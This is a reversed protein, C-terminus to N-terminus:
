LSAELESRLRGYAYRLRSKVTEYGEGITLAIEDLSMEHFFRLVVAERQPPPLKLLAQRVIETNQRLVLEAEPPLDESPLDPLDELGQKGTEWASKRGDLWVHRAIQFLFTRFAATPQYDACRTLIRLWTKQTVDEAEHTNGGCMWALYNFLARNHRHFLEAAPPEILGSAVLLM